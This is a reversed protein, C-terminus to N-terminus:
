LADVMRKLNGYGVRIGLLPDEMGEFEISLVGDYGGRKFLRVCHQVAVDGHGIISGRLYNGARSQFWGEGPDFVSGPKMHFDKAHCHIAYPMLRGIAQAPDEDACVFNGLDILAGFNPHDVADFLKELRISDQCFFGHNEVMTKVGLDAAFEAVTRCGEVLIPLAADFSRPGVHEAPFGRSADHRMGPAGLAAAVRVEDKLREAEAKADGGSGNIFDAGITYNAIGIGVRECEAKVAPAYSLATEGEPTPLGSFEIVEFGTEKASQIVEFLSINGERLLRSYSYSSVGLKM